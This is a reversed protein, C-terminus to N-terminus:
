GKSPGASPPPSSRSPTSSPTASPPASRSPQAASRGGSPTPTPQPPQPSRTGPAAPPMPSSPVVSPHPSGTGTRSDPTPGPGTIEPPSAPPVPRAPSPDPGLVLYGTVAAAAAALGALPLAFRRLNRRLRAAPLRRVHLAPPDAPRLERVTIGAARADLAQRLRREVPREGHTM